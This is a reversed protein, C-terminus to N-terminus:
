NHGLQGLADSQIRQRYYKLGPVFFCGAAIAGFIVHAWTPFIAMAVSALVMAAAQLYFQGSLIGAKVVFVMSGILPLLPSLKLPPLDLLREMPSLTAICLLSAGWVHAIQREVFTVPGMRRRLAWFVAAWAGLGFSWLGAYSLRNNVGSWSMWQTM